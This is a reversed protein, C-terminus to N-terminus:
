LSRNKAHAYSIKWFTTYRIECHHNLITSIQWFICNKTPFKQVHWFQPKWLNWETKFWNWGTQNQKGALIKTLLHYKLWFKFYKRFNQPSLILRAIGYKSQKNVVSPHPKELQYFRIIKGRRSDWSWNKPRFKSRILDIKFWDQALKPRFHFKSSRFGPRVAFKDTATQYFKNM